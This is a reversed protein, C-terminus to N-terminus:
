LAQTHFISFTEKGLQAAACLISLAHSSLTIITPGADYLIFCISCWVAVKCKPPFPCSFLRWVVLISHCLYRSNHLFLQLVSSDFVELLQHLLINLIHQTRMDIVNPVLKRSVFCQLVAKTRLFCYQMDVETLVIDTLIETFYLRTVETTAVSLCHQVSTYWWCATSCVPTGGAPLAACQHISYLTDVSKTQFLIQSGEDRHTPLRPEGADQTVTRSLVTGTLPYTANRRLHVM